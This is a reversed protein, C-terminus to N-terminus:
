NGVFRSYPSNIAVGSSSNNGANGRIVSNSIESGAGGSISIGSAYMNEVWVGTVRAGDVASAGSGSGVGSFDIGTQSGSSQIAKNGDVRLNSVVVRTGTSTDTNTVVSIAANKSDKVKILTASGSGTLTVNNPISISGDVIYTGEMLYVVGGGAPLATLASNIATQAATCSNVVVEGSTTSGCAAACIAWAVPPFGSASSSGTMPPMSATSRM